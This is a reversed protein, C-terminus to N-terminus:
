TISETGYYKRHATCARFKLTLLSGLLECVVRPNCKHWSCKHWSCKHWSCEHLTHKTHYAKINANDEGSIDTCLTVLMPPM